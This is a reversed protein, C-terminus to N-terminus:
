SHVSDNHLPNNSGNKLFDLFAEAKGLVTSVETHENMYYCAKTLAEMRMRHYTLLGEYFSGVDEM